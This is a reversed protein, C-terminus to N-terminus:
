FCVDSDSDVSGDSVSSNSDEDADDGEDGGDREEDVNGENRPMDGVCPDEVDDIMDNNDAALCDDVMGHSHRRLQVTDHGVGIAAYRAFMDRHAFSIRNAYM